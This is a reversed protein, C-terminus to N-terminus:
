IKIQKMKQTQCRYGEKNFGGHDTIELDRLSHQNSTFIPARYPMWTTALLENYLYIIGIQMGRAHTARAIYASLGGGGDVCFLAM